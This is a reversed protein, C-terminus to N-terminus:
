KVPASAASKIHPRSAFVSWTGGSKKWINTVHVNVPGLKTGDPGIVGSIVAETDTIAVDATVFRIPEDTVVLSSERMPGKGTQEATFAKEIEARGAAKRGMPDIADADEAFVSAMAKADHSNWANKFVKCQAAVGAVDDDAGSARGALTLGAALALGLTASAVWKLNTMLTKELPIPSRVIAESLMAVPALARLDVPPDPPARPARPRGCPM